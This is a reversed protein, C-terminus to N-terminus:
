TEHFQVTVRLPRRVELSINDRMSPKEPGTTFLCTQFTRRRGSADQSLTFM